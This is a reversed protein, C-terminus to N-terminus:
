RESFRDVGDSRTQKKQRTLKDMYALRQKQMVPTSWKGYVKRSSRENDDDDEDDDLM